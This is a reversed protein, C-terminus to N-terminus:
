QLLEIIAVMHKCRILWIDALNSFKFVFVSLNYFITFIQTHLLEKELNGGIRSWELLQEAILLNNTNATPM